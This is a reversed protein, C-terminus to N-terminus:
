DSTADYLDVLCVTEPNLCGAIGQWWGALRGQLQRAMGQGADPLGPLPDGVPHLGKGWSPRMVEDSSFLNISVNGPLIADIGDLETVAEADISAGTTFSEGREGANDVGRSRSQFRSGGREGVPSAHGGADTLSMSARGPVGHAAGIPITPTVYPMGEASPLDEIRLM